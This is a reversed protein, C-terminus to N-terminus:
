GGYSKKPAVVSSRLRMLPEIRVEEHLDEAARVGEVARNITRRPLGYQM